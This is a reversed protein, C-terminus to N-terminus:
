LRAYLEFVVYVGTGGTIRLPAKNADLVDVIYAEVSTGATAATQEVVWNTGDSSMEYSNGIDAIVPATVAGAASAGTARFNTAAGTIFLTGENIPWFAITDGAAYAIGTEPNLNGAGPGNCAIGGQLGIDMQDADWGAATAETVTGAAVVCVPEGVDFTQAATLGAYKVTETGGHASRFPMFDRAAM